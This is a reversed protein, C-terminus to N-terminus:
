HESGTGVLRVHLFAESAQLRMQLFLVRRQDPDDPAELCEVLDGPMQCEEAAPFREGCMHRPPRDDRCQPGVRRALGGEDVVVEALFQLERSVLGHVVLERHEAEAGVLIYLQQRPNRQIGVWTKGEVFYALGDLPHGGPLTPADIGVELELSTRALPQSAVNKDVRRAEVGVGLASRGQTQRVVDDVQGVQHEDEEIGSM